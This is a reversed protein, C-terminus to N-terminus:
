KSISHTSYSPVYRSDKVAAGNSMKADLGKVTFEAGVEAGKVPASVAVDVDPTEVGINTQTQMSNAICKMRSKASENSDTQSTFRTELTLKSGM